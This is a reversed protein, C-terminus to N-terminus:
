RLHRPEFTKPPSLSWLFPRPQDAANISKTATSAATSSHDTKELTPKLISKPTFNSGSRITNLAAGTIPDRKGSGSISVYNSNGRNASSSLELLSSLSPIGILSQSSKVAGFNDDGNTTKDPMKYEKIKPLIKEEPVENFRVKRATKKSSQPAMITETASKASFNREPVKEQLYTTTRSAQLARYTPYTEDSNTSPADKKVKKPSPMNMPPVLAIRKQQFKLEKLAILAEGKEKREDSLQSILEEIQKNLEIIKVDKETKLKDLQLKLEAIIVDKDFNQTESISLREKYRDMEIKLQVLEALKDSNEKITKKQQGIEHQATKYESYFKQFKSRLEGLGNDLKNRTQSDDSVLFEQSANRSM